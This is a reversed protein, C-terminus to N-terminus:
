AAQSNEKEFSTNCIHVPPHVIARIVQKIVSMSINDYGCFTNSKFKSIVTFIDSPTVKQLFLSKVLADNMFETFKVDGKTKIKQLWSQVLVQSFTM